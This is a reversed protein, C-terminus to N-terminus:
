AIKEINLEGSEIVVEQLNKLVLNAFEACTVGKVCILTDFNLTAYEEGNINAKAVAILEDTKLELGYINSKLAQFIFSGTIRYLGKAKILIGGNIYQLCNNSLNVTDYKIRKNTEVTKPSIIKFQGTTKIGM